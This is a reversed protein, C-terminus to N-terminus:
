PNTVATQGTITYLLYPLGTQANGDGRSQDDAPM